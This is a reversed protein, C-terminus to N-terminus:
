EGEGIAKDIEEGCEDPCVLGVCGSYTDKVCDTSLCTKKWEKRVAKVAELQAKLLVREIIARSAAKWDPHDHDTQVQNPWERWNGCARSMICYLDKWEKNEDELEKIRKRDAKLAQLLEGACNQRRFTDYDCTNLFELREDKMRESM